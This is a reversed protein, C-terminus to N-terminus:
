TDRLASAMEDLLRRQGSWELMEVAARSLAVYVERAGRDSELVDLHRRVTDVDGRVV